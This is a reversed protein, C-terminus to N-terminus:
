TIWLVGRISGQWCPWTGTMAKFAIRLNGWIALSQFRCRTPGRRWSDTSGAALTSPDTLIRRANHGDGWGVVCLMPHTNPGLLPAIAKMKEPSGSEDMFWDAEKLM